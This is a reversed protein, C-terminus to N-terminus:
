RPTKVTYDYQLYHRINPLYDQAYMKLDVVRSVGLGNTGVIPQILSQMRGSTFSDSGVVLNVRQGHKLSGLIEQRAMNDTAPMSYGVISVVDAEHIAHRMSMWLSRMKEIETIKAKELGPLGICLDNGGLYAQPVYSLGNGSKIWDVCGHVHILRAQNSMFQGPERPFEIGCTLALTEIATDYNFTIITDEPTLSKIWSKYPASTDSDAELLHTFSNCQCAILRKLQINLVSLFEENSKYRNKAPIDTLADCVLRARKTAPNRSSWELLAILEEANLRETLGLMEDISRGKARHLQALCQRIEEPMDIDSHLQWYEMTLLNTFLPGGLPRSFGAGVIYVSKVM